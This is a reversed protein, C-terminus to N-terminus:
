KVMLKQTEANGARDFVKLLYIGSSLAGVNMKESQSEMLKQGTISYIEAKQFDDAEILIESEAPIPYVKFNAAQTNEKLSTLDIYTMDVKHGYFTKAAAYEDYFMEIDGDAPIWQDDDKELCVGHIANYNEYDFEFQYKLQWAGNVWFAVGKDNGDPQYIYGVYQENEWANNVWDEYLISILAGTFQKEYTVREDNQWAGGEMYQVLLEITGMGDDTYTWLEDSSWTTGNWDWFLITTVDGAYNYVEKTENMWNGDEWEQYIVESLLDGDYTYSARAENEMMGTEYASMAVAEIVNGNFDYEYTIMYYDMWGAGEDIKTHEEILYYDYEDYSYVTRYKEGDTTEWTAIEPVITTEDRVGYNKLVHQTANSKLNAKHQAFSVNGFAMVLVALVFLGKKM